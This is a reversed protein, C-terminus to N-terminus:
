KQKQMKVSEADKIQVRYQIIGKRRATTPKTPRQKGAGQPVSNLEEDSLETPKIASM